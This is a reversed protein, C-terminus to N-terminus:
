LNLLPQPSHLLQISRLQVSIADSQMLCFSCHNSGLSHYLTNWTALIRAAIRQVPIPDPWIAAKKKGEFLKCYHRNHDYNHWSHLWMVLQYLWMVLPHLWMVLPHLWMVLQPTVHSVPPIVHSVPPTVPHFISITLFFQIKLYISSDLHISLTSSPYIRWSFHKFKKCGWM